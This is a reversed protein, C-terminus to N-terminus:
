LIAYVSVHELNFLKVRVPDKEGKFKVGIRNAEKDYESAIEGRRGNLDSRASLGKATVVDGIEFRCQGLLVFRCRKAKKVANLFALVSEATQGHHPIGNSACVKCNCWFGETDHIKKRREDRSAVDEVPRYSITIEEGEKIDRNAIVFRRAVDVNIRDTLECITYPSCCSANPACSHNFRSILKYVGKWSFKQSEGTCHNKNYVNYINFHNKLIANFGGETAEDVYVAAPNGGVLVNLEKLVEQVKDPGYNDHLQLLGTMYYYRTHERLAEADLSHEDDEGVAWAYCFTFFPDEEVIVEGGKIERSTKIGLGHPGEFLYLGKAHLLADLDM